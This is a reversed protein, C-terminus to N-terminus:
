LIATVAASLAVKVAAEIANSVAQHIASAVNEAEASALSLLVTLAVRQAETQETTDAAGIKLVAGLTYGSVARDILGQETPDTIHALEGNLLSSLAQRSMTAVNATLTEAITNM